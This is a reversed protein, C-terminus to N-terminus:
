GERTARAFGGRGLRVRVRFLGRAARSSADTLDAGPSDPQDRPLGVVILVEEAGVFQHPPDEEVEEQHLDPPVAELQM